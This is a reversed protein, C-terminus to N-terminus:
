FFQRCSLNTIHFSFKGFFNYYLQLSLKQITWIKISWVKPVMLKPCWCKKPTSPDFITFIQQCRLNITGLLFHLFEGASYEKNLISQRNIVFLYAHHFILFIICYLPDGSLVSKPSNFIGLQTFGHLDPVIKTSFGPIPSNVNAFDM